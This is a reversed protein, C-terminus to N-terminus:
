RITVRDLVIWSIVPVVFNFTSNVLPLLPHFGHIPGTFFFYKPLMSLSFAFWILMYVSMAVVIIFRQRRDVFLLFCRAHLMTGCWAILAILFLPLYVLTVVAEPYLLRCAVTELDFEGSYEGCFGTPKTLFGIFSDGGMFLYSFTNGFVVQGVTYSFFCFLVWIVVPSYFASKYDISQVQKSNQM